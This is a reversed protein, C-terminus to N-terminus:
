DMSQTSSDTTQADLRKELEMLKAELEEVRKRTRQLVKQQVDLEERSVFNMKELTSRIVAEINKKVDGPLDGPLNSQISKLIQDLM